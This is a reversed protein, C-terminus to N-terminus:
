TAPAHLGLVPTQEVGVAGFPVAHLSPLAQSKVSEQWVPTQVAALWTVQV